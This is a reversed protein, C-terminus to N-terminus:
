YNDENLKCKSFDAEYLEEKPQKLDKQWKGKAGSIKWEKKQKPDQKRCSIEKFVEESVKNSNYGNAEIFNESFVVIDKAGDIIVEDQVETDEYDKFWMDYVIKTDVDIQKKSLDYLEFLEEIVQKVYTERTVSTINREKRWGRLAKVLNFSEKTNNLDRTNM